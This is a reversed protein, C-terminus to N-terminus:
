RPLEEDHAQSPTVPGRRMQGTLIKGAFLEWAFVNNDFGQM